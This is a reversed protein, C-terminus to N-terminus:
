GVNGKTTPTKPLYKLSGIPLKFTQLDDPVRVRIESSTLIAFAGCRSVDVHQSSSSDRPLRNFLSKYDRQGYKSRSMHIWSLQKFIMASDETIVLRQNTTKRLWIAKSGELSRRKERKSKTSGRNNNSYLVVSNNGCYIKLLRKIGDVVRLSTVFKRLWIGHNSAEFCAVFKVVITSPAILYQKVFKWPIAGGALMYIYGSTFCKSDQYGAFDSDYTEDIDGNLFETKVDMQTEQVTILVLVHGIDNISEEEFVINRINEEKEFEVEELIRVNETEFFSKRLFLTFPGPHQERSGDYRGYYEGSRNSKIAKIKKGLQLEVEAKFSKFVDLSQSKEHILYLYDYGEEAGKINKRKKNILDEGLKLKLLKLKAALNSMEM